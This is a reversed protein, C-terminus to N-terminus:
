YGPAQVLGPNVLLATSPLPYWEYKRDRKAPLDVNDEQARGFFWWQGQTFKDFRRLDTRRRRGECLFELGWQSLMWDEDYDTFGPGPENLAAKNKFYRTRVQDVYSKGESKNGKRIECEAIMYVVEALRFEVEDIDKFGGEATTPFMPYKILRIGSNTEGWRSSMVPALERGLNQFTGVQDVYVLPQGDRDADAILPNSTDQGFNAYMPGSLFIGDYTNTGINYKYNQKRIDRSDFRDYVAGLKDGYDKVFNKPNDTYVYSDNDGIKTAGTLMNGSNDYSPALCTCNWAGIGDYSQLMYSDYNYPLFTMNRVNTTANTAGQGDECAFSFVVEPCNTNNLSYIDRYDNAISYTGYTGNLIEKCLAECEAYHDEDIFLKANLLLRAKLIRNVGQNMRNVTKRSGDEKPLDALCGDLESSIFNYIAKCGENFDASASGPVDSSVTTCLPLSGGWIEFLSYYNWARLMRVEAVYSAIQAPTMHLEGADLTSLDEIMQNSLGIATWAGSWANQIIKSEPSWTHTSLVYKEGEDYGWVGANWVRWVLQDASLEQLFYFNESNSQQVQGYISAVAAKVSNENQYYVESGIRDYPKEDLDTCSAFGMMAAAVLLINYKIKGM